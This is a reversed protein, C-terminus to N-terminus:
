GGKLGGASLLDSVLRPVRPTNGRPNTIPHRDVYASEPVAMAQRVVDRSTSETHGQWNSPNCREWFANYVEEWTHETANIYFDGLFAGRGRVQYRHSFVPSMTDMGGLAAVYASPPWM